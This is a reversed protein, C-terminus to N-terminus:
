RRRTWGGPPVRAALPARPPAAKQVLDGDGRQAQESTNAQKTRCSLSFLLLCFSSPNRHLTDAQTKNMRSLLVIM